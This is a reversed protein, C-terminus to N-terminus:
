RAIERPVIPAFLSPVRECQMVITARKLAGDGDKAKGRNTARLAVSVSTRRERGRPIVTDSHAFQHSDVVAALPM